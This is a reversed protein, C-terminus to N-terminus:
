RQSKGRDKWVGFISNEIAHSDLPLLVVKSSSLLRQVIKPYHGPRTGPWVRPLSPSSPLHYFPMLLLDKSLIHQESSPLIVHFDATAAEGPGPLAALEVDLLCYDGLTVEGYDLSNQEHSLVAEQCLASFRSVAGSHQARDGVTARETFALSAGAFSLGHHLRRLSVVLRSWIASASFWSRPEAGNPRSRLFSSLNLIAGSNRPARWGRHRPVVARGSSISRAQKTGNHDGERSRSPSTGSM